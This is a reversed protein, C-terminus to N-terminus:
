IQFKYYNRISPFYEAIIDNVAQAGRFMNSNYPIHDDYDLYDIEDAWIDFNFGIEDAWIDFNFYPHNEDVVVHLPDLLNFAPRTNSIVVKRVEIEGLMPDDESYIDYDIDTAVIKFTKYRM